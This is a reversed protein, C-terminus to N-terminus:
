FTKLITNSIIFSFGKLFANQAIEKERKAETKETTVACCIPLVSIV